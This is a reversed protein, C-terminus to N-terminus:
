LRIDVIASRRLNRIYQESVLTLRKNTLRLRTKERWNIPNPDNIEPKTRNCVMIVVISSASKIPTSAKGIPLKISIQQLQTSLQNINFTGLRGSLKSKTQLALEDFHSCNKATASIQEARKHTANILSETAGTPLAFHAQSLTVAIPAKHTHDKFPNSIRKNDLRLIYVGGSTEIPGVVKGKTLKHITTKIEPNLQETFNWGLNGGVAATPSQSFNRAIAAFDGGKRIKEIIRNALDLVQSSIQRNILPLFIESVLYEPKGKNKKLMLMFDDIEKESINITLSYRRRILKSWAIESELRELLVSTEIGFKKLLGRLAGRDMGARRAFNKEANLIESRSTTIKFKKAEQLRLKEDILSRLTQGSLRKRNEATNSLGSLQISLFLRKKLDLVSIMDDNVTAAIALTQQSTASRTPFIVIITLFCFLIFIAPVSPAFQYNITKTEIHALHSIVLM